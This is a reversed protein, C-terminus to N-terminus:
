SINMRIGLFQSSDSIVIPDATVLTPTKPTHHRKVDTILEPTKSRPMAPYWSLFFLCYHQHKVSQMNTQFYSGYISYECLTSLIPLIPFIAM